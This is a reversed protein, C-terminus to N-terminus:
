GGEEGSVGVLVFGLVEGIELVKGLAIADKHVLINVAVSVRFGSGSFSFAIEAGEKGFGRDGKDKDLCYDNEADQDVTLIPAETGNSREVWRGDVVAAGVYLGESSDKLFGVAGVEHSAGKALGFEFFELSGEAEAGGADVRFGNEM